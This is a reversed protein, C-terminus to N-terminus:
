IYYYVALPISLERDIFSIQDKGTTEKPCGQGCPPQPDVLGARDQHGGAGSRSCM